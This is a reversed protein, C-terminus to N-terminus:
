VKQLRPQGDVTQYKWSHLTKYKINNLTSYEMLDSIIITQKTKSDYLKWTEMRKLKMKQKTENSHNKGFMGVDHEKM